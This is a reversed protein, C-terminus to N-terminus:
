GRDARLYAEHVREVYDAECIECDNQWWVKFSHGGVPSASAPHRPHDRIWFQQMWFGVQQGCSM